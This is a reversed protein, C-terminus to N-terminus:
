TLAEAVEFTDPWATSGCHPCDNGEFVYGEFVDGDPRTHCWWRDDLVSVAYGWCNCVGCRMKFQPNSRRGKFGTGKRFWQRGAFLKIPALLTM